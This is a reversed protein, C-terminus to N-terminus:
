ISLSQAVILQSNSSHCLTIPLFLLLFVLSLQWFLPATSSPCLSTLKYLFPSLTFFCPLLVILYWLPPLHDCYPYFQDVFFHLICCLWAWTHCMIEGSHWFRHWCNSLPNMDMWLMCLNVLLMVRGYSMYTPVMRNRCTTGATVYKKRVWTQYLTSPTPPCRVSTVTPM